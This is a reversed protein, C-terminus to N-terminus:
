GGSRSGIMTRFMSYAVPSTDTFHVAWKNLPVVIATVDDDSGYQQATSTLDFCADAPNKHQNIISVIERDTISHSIGDSCLVLFSDNDVVRHQITPKSVIGSSRLSLNGFSRTISLRGNVLPNFHSDWDIWGGRKEIRQAEHPNSPSHEISLEVPNGKESVIAKSDGINAVSLYTQNTLLAVVATSGVIDKEKFNENRLHKEIEKQCEEFSVLFTNEVVEFLHDDAKQSLNKELLIVLRKRVFESVYSGNHGDFVGFFQVKDSVNRILFRDENIHNRGCVSSVGPQYGNSIEFNSSTLLNRINNLFCITKTHPRISALSKCLHMSLKYCRYFM